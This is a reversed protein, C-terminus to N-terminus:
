ICLILNQHNDKVTTVAIRGSIEHEVNEFRKGGFLNSSIFFSCVGVIFSIMIITLRKYNKYKWCLFSVVGLAVFVFILEFVKGAFIPMAFYIGLGFALFCFLLPRNNIKTM